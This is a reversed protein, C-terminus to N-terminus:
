EKIYEEKSSYTHDLFDHKLFLSNQQLFENFNCLAKSDREDDDGSKLCLSLFVNELSSQKYTEILASPADEAPLRGYRMM